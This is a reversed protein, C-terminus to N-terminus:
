IHKRAKYFTRVGYGGLIFSVLSVIILYGQQKSTYNLLEQLVIDQAITLRLYGIPHQDHQITDIYVYSPTTTNQYESLLSYDQQSAYEPLGKFNYLTINNIRPDALIVKALAKIAKTDKTLLPQTLLQSYHSVLTEGLLPTQQNLWRQNLQNIKVVVFVIMIAIVVALTLHVFRKFIKYGSHFEAQADSSSLTDIRQKKTDVQQGVM